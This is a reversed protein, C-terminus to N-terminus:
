LLTYHYWWMKVEAKVWLKKHLLHVHESRM